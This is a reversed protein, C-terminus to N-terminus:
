QKALLRLAQTLLQEITDAQKVALVARQASAGDYGLGVLAATAEIRIDQQEGIAAVAGPLGASVMEQTDIKEKLELLIRQATKKGLGPVRALADANETIIAAAVDAARLSGLIGLALKPGVRTVTILRRFMARETEDIFGYLALFGDGIHLHLLIKAEKDKQLANLTNGSCNLEYGLGYAEVVARDHYLDTVKGCIHAFM